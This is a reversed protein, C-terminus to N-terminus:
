KRKRTFEEFNTFLYNIKEEFFFFHWLYHYANAGNTFMYTMGDLTKRTMVNKDDYVFSETHNSPFVNTLNGKSDYSLTTTISVSDVINELQQNRCMEQHQLFSQM